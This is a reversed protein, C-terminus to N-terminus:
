NEKEQPHVIKSIYFPIYTFVYYILLYLCLLYILLINFIQYGAHVLKSFYFQCRRWDGAM